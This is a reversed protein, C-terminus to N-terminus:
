LCEIGVELWEFRFNTDPSSSIAGDATFGSGVTDFPEYISSSNMRSEGGDWVWRASITVRLPESARSTIQFHNPLERGSSRTSPTYGGSPHPVSYYTNPFYEIVIGETTLINGVIPQSDRQYNCQRAV